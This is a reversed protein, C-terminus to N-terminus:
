NPLKVKEPEIKEGFKFRTRWETEYRGDARTEIVTLEKAPENLSL